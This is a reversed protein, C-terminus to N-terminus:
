REAFTEGSTNKNACKTQVHPVVKFMDQTVKYNIIIVLQTLLM